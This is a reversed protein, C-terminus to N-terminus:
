PLGELPQSCVWSTARGYSPSPLTSLPCFNVPRRPPHNPSSAHSDGHSSLMPRTDGHKGFVPKLASYETVKTSSSWESLEIGWKSLSKWNREPPLLRLKASRELAPRKFASDIQTEHSTWLSFCSFYCLRTLLYGQIVFVGARLGSGDSMLQWNTCTM